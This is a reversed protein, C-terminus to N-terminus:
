ANRMQARLTTWMETLRRREGLWLLGVYLSGFILTKYLAALWLSLNASWLSAALTTAAAAAVLALLPWLFLRRISFDVWTRAGYMLQGIGVILMLDVALAVGVTGWRTGLLLLGGVLVLLQILKYLMLRRPQGAAVYIATLLDRLPDILAFVAMLRFIPVMPLWKPGLLLTVFEPAILVLWGALLFGARVLLASSRFFAKSLQLRNTAAEAFTGGAVMTVPGSLIARPYSAFTYARSYFGMDLAGLRFRVFLDDVRQISTELFNAAMVPAGFRLFYAVRRRDLSLWPRWLPRWFYFGIMMVFTATIESALLTWLEVDRWALGLTIMAVLIVNIINLIAIRKHQVRRVLLTHPVRTLVEVATTLTIVLLATRTPGSSWLLIFGVMAAAWITSILIQLALYVAAARNEDETEPAHHLFAGSLGFDAFVSTLVVIALAGAYIGFTEVNLMRALLISRVFGVAVIVIQAAVNWSVSRVSRRTLTSM